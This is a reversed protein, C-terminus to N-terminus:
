ADAVVEPVAVVGGGMEGVADAAAQISSFEAGSAAVTVDGAARGTRTSRM